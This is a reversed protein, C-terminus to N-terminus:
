ENRALYSTYNISPTTGAIEHRVRLYRWHVTHRNSEFGTWYRTPGAAVNAGGTLAAAAGLEIMALNVVQGSFDATDSGQLILTYKENASSVDIAAVDCVFYGDFRPAENSPQGGFAGGGKTDIVKPQGGITGNGSATVAGADKLQLQVDFIFRRPRM